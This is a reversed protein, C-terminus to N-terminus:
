SLSGVTPGAVGGIPAVSGMRPSNGRAAGEWAPLGCRMGMGVKRAGDCAAAKAPRRVPFGSQAGLHLLTYVTDQLTRRSQSPDRRIERVEVAVARLGAVETRAGALAAVLVGVLLM